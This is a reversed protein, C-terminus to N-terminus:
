LTLPTFPGISPNLLKFSPTPRTPRLQFTPLRFFNLNSDYLFSSFASISPFIFWTTKIANSQFSQSPTDHIKKTAFPLEIFPKTRGDIVASLLNSISFPLRVNKSHLFTVQLRFFQGYFWLFATNLFFWYRFSIQMFIASFLFHIPSFFVKIQDKWFILNIM